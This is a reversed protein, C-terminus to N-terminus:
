RARPPTRASSAVTHPRYGNRLVTHASVSGRGGGTRCIM